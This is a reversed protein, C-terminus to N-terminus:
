RKYYSQFMGLTIGNIENKAMLFFVFLSM